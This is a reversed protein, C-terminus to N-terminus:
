PPFDGVSALLTASGGYDIRKLVDKTSKGKGQLEIDTCTSKLYCCISVPTVYNLNITTLVFSAFLLPVQILFAWRWGLRDSIFGGLPGGLGM